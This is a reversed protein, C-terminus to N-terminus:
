SEPYALRVFEGPTLGFARAINVWVSFPSREGSGVVRRELRSLTAPDVGSLRHLEVLGMGREGRLRELVGALKDAAGVPTERKM